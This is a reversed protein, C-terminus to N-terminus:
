CPMLSGTEWTMKALIQWENGEDNYFRYVALASLIKNYFISVPIINPNAKLKQSIMFM